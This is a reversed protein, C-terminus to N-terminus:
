KLIKTRIKLFDAVKKHSDVYANWVSTCWSRIESDREKGPAVAVVDSVSISGRYEPLVFTPWEIRKMGIRMHALQVEKGTYNKELYLYLGILAFLIKIPKTQSNATQASYADVVHQHIFAPDPHLLSYSALEDYLIQGSKM